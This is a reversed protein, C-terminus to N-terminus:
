ILVFNWITALADFCDCFYLVSLRLTSGGRVVGRFACSECCVGGPNIFFVSGLSARFNLFAPRTNKPTCTFLIKTIQQPCALQM